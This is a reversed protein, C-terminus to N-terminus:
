TIKIDNLDYLHCHSKKTRQGDGIFGCSFNQDRRGLILSRQLNAQPGFQSTVTSLFLAAIMFSTKCVWSSTASM